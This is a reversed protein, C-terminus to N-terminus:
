NRKEIKNLKIDLGSRGMCERTWVAYLVKGDQKDLFNAYEKIQGIKFYFVGEFTRVAGQYIADVMKNERQRWYDQKKLNINDQLM